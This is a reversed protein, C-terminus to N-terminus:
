NGSSKLSHVLHWQERTLQTSHSTSTCHASPLFSPARPLLSLHYRHRCAMPVPHISHQDVSPNRVPPFPFIPQRLILPTPLSRYSHEVSLHTLIRTNYSSTESRDASICHRSYPTPTVQPALPNAHLPSTVALRNVLHQWVISALLTLSSMVPLTSVCM